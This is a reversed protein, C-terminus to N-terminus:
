LIKGHGIIRIDKSDPNLLIAKDGKRFAIPKESIIKLTTDSEKKIKVKKEKRNWKREKEIEIKIM